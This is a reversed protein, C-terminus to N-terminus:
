LRTIKEAVSEAYARESRAMNSAEKLRRGVQQAVIGLYDKNGRTDTYGVTGSAM